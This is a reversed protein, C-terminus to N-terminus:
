KRPFLRGPSRSLEQAVPAPEPPPMTGAAPTVPTLQEGAPAEPAPKPGFIRGPQRSLSPRPPGAEPKVEADPDPLDVGATELNQQKLGVRAVEIDARQLDMDNKAFAALQQVSLQRPIADVVLAATLRQAADARKLLEVAEAYGGGLKAVMTLVAAVDASCKREEVRTEGNLTVIKTVKVDPDAASMSVTFDVGLPLTFPGSFKVGDGFVVIESRRDSALHILGPSGPAVRHLWISQNLLQGGLASNNESALRLAIFAGYRLMPDSCAMLDTLRDTFAADDSAALAKLCHARLAPHEEALKALEAAGDSHGLYALSEAAAFRVWPSTNNLAVRLPQRLNNGLAELRIAATLATAPEHLEDELKKRYVSELSVPNMPVQRAVLLYRLHNNRYGYPVSVVVLERTKADAVRSTADSGQFTANLREAVNAAMRISADGPRMMFYYPRGQTIRGGSWVRGVRLSPSELDDITQREKNEKSDSVLTGAVIPGEAKAWVSGLVLNGSPGAPKKDKLMSNLNGTTDYDVLDCALLIGGKLSTTKSEEPLAIQIDIVEGKRAGPPIIASVLVLSTTKNPDDLLEKLHSFGQKKLSQELMQRWSGPPASSGMGAQLRYVLGVGSVAIPGMNDPLTKMGVTAFADADLADEGGIQGRNQGKANKTDACGTLAVALGVLVVCARYM